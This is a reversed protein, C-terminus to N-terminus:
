PDDPLFFYDVPKRYFLSLAKVTEALIKTKGKEMASVHATSVGLYQAVPQAKLGAEVRLQRIRNRNPQVDDPNYEPIGIRKRSM